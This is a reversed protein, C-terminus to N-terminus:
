YDLKGNGSGGVRQWRGDTERERVRENEKERDRARETVGLRGLWGQLWADLARPNRNM